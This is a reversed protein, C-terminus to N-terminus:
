MIVFGYMRAAAIAFHIKGFGEKDEGYKIV